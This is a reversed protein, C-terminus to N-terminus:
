KNNYALKEWFILYDLLLIPLNKSVVINKTLKTPVDKNNNNNKAIKENKVLSLSINKQFFNIIKLKLAINLFFSFGSLLLM